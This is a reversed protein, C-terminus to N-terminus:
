DKSLDAESEPLFERVGNRHEKGGAQDGETRLARESYQGDALEGAKSLKAPDFASTTRTTGLQM